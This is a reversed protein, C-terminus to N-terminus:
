GEAPLYWKGTKAANKIFRDAEDAVEEILDTDINHGCNSYIILKGHPLCGATRMMLDPSSIPDDYGGIMLTPVKITKLAECLKEESGLRMMPRGYDLKRESEFAAPLGSIWEERYTRRASRLADNDIEPDFPPVKDIIGQEIMQRYSMRGADLSHPGGVMAIFSDVRGSELLMLHWGVGAGHSAGMYSFHGIGMKDAFALVDSAFIDYWREGYDEGAPSSPHFGRLTICYVHYGLEAMKHQVGRHYFGMQASLIVRDGSGFEEYFLSVNEDVKVRGTKFANGHPAYERVRGCGGRNVEDIWGALGRPLREDMPTKDDFKLNVAIANMLCHQGMETGFNISAVGKDGNRVWEPDYLFCNRRNKLEEARPAIYEKYDNFEDHKGIAFFLYVGAAEYRDLTESDPIKSTGVPVLGKFFGIYSNGMLVTMSAGASNGLVFRNGVGETHKGIFENILRYLPEIYEESWTGQVEGNEDRYENALPTLIYAGRFEEQIEPLAYFEAGTYNVCVKGELANSRGHLFILLPYKDSKPYGHKTPDYFFYKMGKGVPSNKKEKRGMEGQTLNDQGIDAKEQLDGTGSERDDIEFFDEEYLDFCRGVEYTPGYSVFDDEKLEKAWFPVTREM